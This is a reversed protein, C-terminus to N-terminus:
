DASGAGTLGALREADDSDLERFALRYRWGDGLDEAAVTAAASVIQAGDPLDLIVMPDGDGEVVRITEVCLGGVSVDVTRGPVGELRATGKVPCLTVRLDLRKRPWRRRQIRQVDIGPDCSVRTGDATALGSLRYLADGAFISVAVQRSGGTWAAQDCVIAVYAGDAEVVTGTAEVQDVEVLATSGVVSGLWSPHEV